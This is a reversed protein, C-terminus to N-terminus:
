RPYNDRANLYQVAIGKLIALHKFKLNTPMPYVMNLCDFYSREVDFEIIFDENWTTGNTRDWSNISFSKDNDLDIIMSYRDQPVFWNLTLRQPNINKYSGMGTISIEMSTNKFKTNNYNYHDKNLYVVYFNNNIEKLTSDLSMILNKGEQIIFSVKMKM